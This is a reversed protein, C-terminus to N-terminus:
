AFAIALRCSHQSLLANFVPLSSLARGDSREPLSGRADDIPPSCPLLAVDRKPGSYKCQGKARLKPSLCSGM